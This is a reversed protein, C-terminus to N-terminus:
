ALFAQSAGIAQAPTYSLNESFPRQSQGSAARKGRLAPSLPAQVDPAVDGRYGTARVGTHWCWSHVAMGIDSASRSRVASGAGPHAANREARVQRPGRAM